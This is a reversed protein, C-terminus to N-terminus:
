NKRVPCVPTRSCDSRLQRGEEEKRKLPFLVIGEGRREIDKIGKDGTAWGDM